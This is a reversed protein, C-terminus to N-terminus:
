RIRNWRRGTTIRSANQLPIKAEFAILYAGQQFRKLCPTVWDRIPFSHDKPNRTHTTTKSFLFLQTPFFFFTPPPLLFSVYNFNRIKIQQLYYFFFLTSNDAISPPYLQACAADSTNADGWIIYRSGKAFSPSISFITKRHLKNGKSNQMYIYM